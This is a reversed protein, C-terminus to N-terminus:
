KKRTMDHVLETLQMHLQQIFHKSVGGFMGIRNEDEVFIGVSLQGSRGEIPMVVQVMEIEGDKNVMRVTLSEPQFGRKASAELRELNSTKSLDRVM